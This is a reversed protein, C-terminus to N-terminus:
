HSSTEVFKAAFNVVNEAELMKKYDRWFGAQCTECDKDYRQHTSCVSMWIFVNENTLDFLFSEYLEKRIKWLVTAQCNYGVRGFMDSLGSAKVLVCKFEPNEEIYERWLREYLASVQEHNIIKRGKAEKWSLGTSGDKFVKAAQYIEEISKNDRDKIRAFFASFRKDGRTSCELYPAKGYKIM